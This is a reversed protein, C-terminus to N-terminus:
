TTYYLENNRLLQIDRSHYDLKSMLTGVHHLGHGLVPKHIREKYVIEFLCTQDLHRALLLGDMEYTSIGTFMDSVGSQM